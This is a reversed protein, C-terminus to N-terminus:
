VCYEHLLLPPRIRAANGQEAGTGARWPDFIYRRWHIGTGRRKTAGERRALGRLDAVGPSCPQPFGAWWQSRCARLTATEFDRLKKLNARCRCSNSPAACARRGVTRLLWVNRRRNYDEHRRGTRASGTRASCQRCFWPRRKFAATKKARALKLRSTKDEVPAHSGGM